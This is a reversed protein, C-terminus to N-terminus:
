GKLRAIFRLISDMTVVAKRGIHLRDLDGANCLDNLKTKGVALLRRAEVLDVLQPPAIPTDSM